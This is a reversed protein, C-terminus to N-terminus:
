QILGVSGNIQSQKGNDVASSLLGLAICSVLGSLIIPNRPQYNRHLDLTGLRQPQTQSGSSNKQDFLHIVFIRRGVGLYTGPIHCTVAFRVMGPIFYLLQVGANTASLGSVITMFISTFYMVVLMISGEVFSAFCVVCVNFSRLVELPIMPDVALIRNKIGVPSLQVKELYYQWYMCTTFLIGGIVFCVIVRASKWVTSSGWNLALLLLIWAAVFLAAGVWDVRLLKEVLTAKM